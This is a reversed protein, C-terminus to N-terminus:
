REAPLASIDAPENINPLAPWDIADAAVSAAWARVAHKRNESLFADLQAALAAPWYGIIPLGAVYSPGSSMSLRELLAAPLLPTDCGVCLVAAFEHTAAHHLAANLGALPGMGAAPRDPIALAGGGYARGCLVVEDVLPRLADLAHEVLPKGQWLAEAKDSGFRSSRGGALVAGLLRRSM